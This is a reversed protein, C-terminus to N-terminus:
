QPATIYDRVRQRFVEFTLTKVPRIFEEEVLHNEVKSAPLVPKFEVCYDKHVDYIIDDKTVKQAFEKDYDNVWEGETLVKWYLKEISLEEL